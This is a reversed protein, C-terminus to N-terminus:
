RAGSPSSPASGAINSSGSACDTSARPSRGRGPLVAAAQHGQRGQHRSARGGERDAQGAAHRGQREPPHDRRLPHRRLHIEVDGRDLPVADRSLRPPQRGHMRRRHRRLAEQHHRLIRRRGPHRPRARGHGRRGQQTRRPEDTGGTANPRAGIRTLQGADRGRGARRRRRFARTM